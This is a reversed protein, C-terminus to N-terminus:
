KIAQPNIPSGCGGTIPIPPGSFLFEYVGDEACDDALAKVNFIEGMTLGMMPIVVWHWPQFAQLSENPRVECGWTDTCIAAIERKWCWEATEFRLGPADGGSYGAWSGAAQCREMMGTRVVVFDGRRLEVGQAEACADLEDNSIGYGDELVDGGLWRPIDLLVGRGVMRNHMKEIGNKKAGQTDVLRADYGNWMRDGAFNHCLADWQTGCQLPMIVADDAYRCPLQTPLQTASRQHDQAGAAAEVGTQLMYHIPNFRGHAGNEASQPGNADFNLGLSFVKGKRVCDRAALIEAEAVFNMTGVEDDAGWRGWNKVKQRMAEIDAITINTELPKRPIIKMAVDGQAGAVSRAASARTGRPSNRFKDRNTVSVCSKAFTKQTRRLRPRAIL